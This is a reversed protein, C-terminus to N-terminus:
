NTYSDNLSSSVELIMWGMRSSLVPHWPISSQWPFPSKGTSTGAKGPEAPCHLSSHRKGVRVTGDTGSSGMETDLEEDWIMRLHFGGESGLPLM